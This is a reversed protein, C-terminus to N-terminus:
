QRFSTQLLKIALKWCWQKRSESTVAGLICRYDLPLHLASLRWTESPSAFVDSQDISLGDAVTSSEEM